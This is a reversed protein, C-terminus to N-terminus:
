LTTNWELLTVTQGPTAGGADGFRVKARGIRSGGVTVVLVVTRDAYGGSGGSYETAFVPGVSQTGWSYASRVLAGRDFQAVAGDRVDVAITASPALVTGHVRLVGAQGPAFSTVMIFPCARPLTICRRQLQAQPLSMASWPGLIAVKQSNAQTAGCFEANRAGGIYLASEGSFTAITGSVATDCAGSAPVSPASAGSAPPTWGLATGAVITITPDTIRWQAAFGRQTFTFHFKGPTLHLVLGSCLGSTLASLASADTYVGPDLALYRNTGPCAPAVRATATAWDPTGVRSIATAIESATPSNCVAAPTSTIQAVTCNGAARVGYTSANLTTGSATDIASSAVVDGQVALSGVRINVGPEAARSNTLLAHSPASGSVGAGSPASGAGSGAVPTCAVDAGTGDSLTVTVGACASGERGWTLTPRMANITTDLAGNAGYLLAQRQQTVQNTRFSTDAYGLTAGMTMGFVTVFVLAIIM